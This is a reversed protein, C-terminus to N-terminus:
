LKVSKIKHIISGSSVHSRKTRRRKNLRYAEGLEKWRARDMTVQQCNTGATIKISNTWREPPRGVPRKTTSRWDM